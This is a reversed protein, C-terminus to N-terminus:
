SWPKRLSKHFNSTGSTVLVLVSVFVEMVELWVVVLIVLLVVLVLVALMGGATPVAM